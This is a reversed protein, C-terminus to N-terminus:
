EEHFSQMAFVFMLTKFPLQSSGLLELIKVNSGSAEDYKKSPARFINAVSGPARNKTLGPARSGLKKPEM